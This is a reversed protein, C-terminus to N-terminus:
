TWITWGARTGTPSRPWWKVRGGGNGLSSVPTAAKPPPFLADADKGWPAPSVVPNDREYIAQRAYVVADLLEEFMDRLADRGNHPQLPTKYRQRGVADRAQMEAIVIEWLAPMDNPTPVPQEIAAAPLPTEAEVPASWDHLLTGLRDVPGILGFLSLVRLAQMLPHAVLNHVAWWFERGVASLFSKM